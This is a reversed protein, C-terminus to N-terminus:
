NPMNESKEVTEIIDLLEREALALGEIIGCCKKYEEYSSCGYASMHDSTDNMIERLKKQLNPVIGIDDIM